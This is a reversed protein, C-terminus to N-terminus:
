FALIWFLVPSLLALVLGLLAQARLFKSDTPEALTVVSFVLSYFSLLLIAGWINLRWQSLSFIFATLGALFGRSGRFYKRIPSLIANLKKEHIGAEAAEGPEGLSWNTLRKSFRAQIHWKPVIKREYIIISILVAAIFYFVSITQWLGVLTLLSSAFATLILASGTARWSKKGGVSLPFVIFGGILFVFAIPWVVNQAILNLLEGIPLNKYRIAMLNFVLLAAISIFYLIFPAGGYDYSQRKFLRSVDSSDWINWVVISWFYWILPLALITLGGLALQETPNLSLVFRIIEETGPIINLGMGLVNSVQRGIGPLQSWRNLVLVACSLLFLNRVASLWTVRWRRRSQAQKILAGDQKTLQTFGAGTFESIVCAITTVFQDVNSWYTSHDSILNAHNHVAKSQIFGPLKDFIPGNPAPDHSAYLDIWDFAPDLGLRHAENLPNDTQIGLANLYIFYFLMSLIFILAGLTSMIRCADMDLYDRGPIFCTSLSLLWENRTIFLYPSFILLIGTFVTAFWDLGRSRIKKIRDLLKIASGYTLFRQVSAPKDELLAHYAIATGQSHAVVAIKECREDLWNLEQRFKSKMAAFQIPSTSLLYADGIWDSLIFQSNAVLSRLWAFPLISAIASAIALTLALGTVLLM